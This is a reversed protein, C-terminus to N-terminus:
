FERLNQRQAGQGSFFRRSDNDYSVKTELRFGFLLIQYVTAKQVPKSEIYQWLSAVTETIPWLSEVPAPPQPKPCLLLNLLLLTKPSHYGRPPTIIYSNSATKPRVETPPTTNLAGGTISHRDFFPGFLYIDGLTSMHTPPNDSSPTSENRSM